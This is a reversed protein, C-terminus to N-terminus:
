FFQNFFSTRIGVKLLMFDVCQVIRFEFLVGIPQLHQRLQNFVVLVIVRWVSFSRKAFPITFAISQPSVLVTKKKFLNLLLQNIENEYRLCAVLRTNLLCNPLTNRVYLLGVYKERRSKRNESIYVLLM